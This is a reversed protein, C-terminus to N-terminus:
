RTIEQELAEKLCEDVVDIALNMGDAYIYTGHGNELWYKKESERKDIIRQRIGKIIREEQDSIDKELKEKAVLAKRINDRMDLLDKESVEM